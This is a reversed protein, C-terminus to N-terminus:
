ITKVKEKVEPIEILKDIFYNFNEEQESEREKVIEDFDLELLDCLEKGTMAMGEDLLSKAGKEIQQHSTANFSCFHIIVDKKTTRKLFNQVLVLSEFEGAVKKTDFTDGDKIEILMIKNKTEIVCDINITHGSKINTFVRKPKNINQISIGDTNKLKSALIDELNNGTSIVTAHVKSILNGLQKNGFLRQYGSPTEDEGRGKANKILAM